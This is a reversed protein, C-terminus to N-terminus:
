NKKQESFVQQWVTGHLSQGQWFTLVLMIGPLFDVCLLPSILFCVVVKLEQLQGEEMEGEVGM